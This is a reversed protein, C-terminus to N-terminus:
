NVEIIYKSEDGMQLTSKAERKLKEPSDCSLLRRNLDVVPNNQLVSQQLRDLENTKEEILVKLHLKETAEQMLRGKTDELEERMKKMELTFKGHMDREIQAVLSTSQQGHNALRAKLTEIDQKLRNIQNKQRTFNTNYEHQVRRLISSYRGDQSAIHLMLDQAIRIREDRIVELEALRNEENEQNQLIEQEAEDLIGLKEVVRVQQLVTDSKFSDGNKLNKGTMRKKDKVTWIGGNKTVTAFSGQLQTQLLNSQLKFLDKNHTHLNRLINESNSTGSQTIKKSNTERNRKKGTAIANKKSIRSNTAMSDNGDFSRNKALSRLARAPPGRVNVEHKTFNASSSSSGQGTTVKISKTSPAVSTSSTSVPLLPEVQPMLNPIMQKSNWTSAHLTHGQQRVRPKKKAVQVKPLNTRRNSGDASWLHKVSRSNTLEKSSSGKRLNSASKSRFPLRQSSSTTFTKQKSKKKANQSNVDKKQLERTSFLAASQAREKQSWFNNNNFSENEQWGSPPPSTTMELSMTVTGNGTLGCDKVKVEPNLFTGTSNNTIRLDISSSSSCGFGLAKSIVKYLNQNVEKGGCQYQFTGFDTTGASDKVDIEFTYCGNENEHNLSAGSQMTSTELSATHLTSSPIAINKNKDNKHHGNNSMPTKAIMALAREVDLVFTESGYWGKKSILQRFEWGTKTEAPTASYYVFHPLGTIKHTDVLLPFKEKEIKIVIINEDMNQHYRKNVLVEAADACKGCWLAYFDVIVLFPGAVETNKYSSQKTKSTKPNADLLVPLLDPLSSFLGGKTAVAVMADDAYNSDAITSWKKHITKPPPHGDGGKSARWKWDVYDDGPAATCLEDFGPRGVFCIEYNDRDKLICVEVDAKGETPLWIPPNLLIRGGSTKHDIKSNEENEVLELLVRNQTLNTSLKSQLQAKFTKGEFALLARRHSPIETASGPYNPYVSTVDKMGLVDCWYAKANALTEVNFSVLLFPETRGQSANALRYQYGDPGTLLQDQSGKISNVTYGLKKAALLQRSRLFVRHIAESAGEKKENKAPLDSRLAIYRLDNGRVYSEIGYNYTLELAFNKTECQYGVMTKSWAGGYPGNCTAECGADFEEHRLVRIGLVQNYFDLSTKLNGIKFVWHRATVLDSTSPLEEDLSM